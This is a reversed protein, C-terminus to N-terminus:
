VDAVEIMIALGLARAYGIATSVAQKTATRQDERWHFYSPESKGARRSMERLSIGQRERESEIAFVFEGANNIQM